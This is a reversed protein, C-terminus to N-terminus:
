FRTRPVDKINGNLLMEKLEEFSIDIFGLEKDFLLFITKKTEDDVYKICNIYEYQGDELEKYYDIAYVKEQGKFFLYVLNSFLSRMSISDIDKRTEIFDMFLKLKSKTDLNNNKILNNLREIEEKTGAINIIKKIIEKPNIKGDVTDKREHYDKYATFNVTPLGLKCRLIDTFNTDLMNDHVVNTGDVAITNGNDMLLMVYRHGRGNRSKMSIFCDIDTYKRILYYYIDSWTRCVLNNPNVENPKKNLLENNYEDEADQLTIYFRSDLSVQKNLEIYLNYAMLEDSINKPINSIVRRELEPDIVANEDLYTKYYGDQVVRFRWYRDEFEESLTSLYIDFNHIVKLMNKNIDRKSIGNILSDLDRTKLYKNYLNDLTYIDFYKKFEIVKTLEEESLDNRNVIDLGTIKKIRFLQGDSFQFGNKQLKTVLATVGDVYYDIDEQEWNVQKRFFMDMVEDDSILKYCVDADVVELEKEPEKLDSVNINIPTGEYIGNDDARPGSVFIPPAEYGVDDNDNNNVSITMPNRVLRTNDDDINEM